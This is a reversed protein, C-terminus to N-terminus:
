MVFFAALGASNAGGSGAMGAGQCTLSYAVTAQETLVDVGMLPIAVLQAAVVNILGSDVVVTDTSLLGRRIRVRLTTTGAGPNGIFTGILFVQCSGKPVSVPGFQQCIFEGNSAWGQIGAGSTLGGITLM